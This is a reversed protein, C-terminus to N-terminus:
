TILEKIQQDFNEGFDNKLSVLDEAFHLSILLVDRSSKKNKAQKVIIQDMKDCDIIM